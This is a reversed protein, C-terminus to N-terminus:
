FALLAPQHLPVYANKDKKRPPDASRASAGSPVSKGKSKSPGATAAAALAAGGDKWRQIAM